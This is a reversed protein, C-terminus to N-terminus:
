RRAKSEAERHWETVWREITKTSELAPIEDVVFRAFAAGSAHSTKGSQWDRWLECAREKGWQKPDNALRAAAGARARMVDLRKRARPDSVSLLAGEFLGHGYAVTALRQPLDAPQGSDLLLWFGLASRAVDDPLLPYLELATLALSPLSDTSCQLSQAIVARATAIGERTEKHLRHHLESELAERSLARQETPKM